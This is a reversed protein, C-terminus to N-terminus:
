VSARVLRENSKIIFIQNSPAACQLPPMNLVQYSVILPHSTHQLVVHHHAHKLVRAALHLACFVLDDVQFLLQLAEM